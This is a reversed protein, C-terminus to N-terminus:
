QLVPVSIQTTKGTTQDYITLNVQTATKQFTISQDSFQITGSTQKANQGFIANSVQQALSSYLQSELMQVFQQSSSLQMSASTNTQTYQNQATASAQLGSANFPNGGFTPNVPTYILQQASAGGCFAFGCFAVVSLASRM